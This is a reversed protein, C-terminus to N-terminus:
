EGVTAEATGYMPQLNSMGDLVFAKLVSGDAADAGAFTVRGTGAAPLAGVWVHTLRGDQMQTLVVAAGPLPQEAHIDVAAEGNAIASLDLELAANATFTYTEGQVGRNGGITLTYAGTRGSRGPISFAARGDAGTQAQQLGIIEEGRSVLAFVTEYPRNCTVEVRLARSFDVPNTVAKDLLRYTGDHAAGHVAAEVVAAPPPAPIERVPPAPPYIAPDTKVYDVRLDDMYITYDEVGAAKMYYPMTRFGMWKFHELEGAFRSLYIRKSSYKVGDFYYDMMASQDVVGDALPVDDIRYIHIGFTHWKEYETTPRAVTQLNKGQALYGSYTAFKYRSYGTESAGVTAADKRNHAGGVATELQFVADRTTYLKYSIFVDADAIDDMQADHEIDFYPGCLKGQNGVGSVEMKLVKGSGAPNDAISCAGAESGIGFYSPWYSPRLSPNTLSDFTEMFFPTEDLPTFPANAPINDPAPEPPAIVPGGVAPLFDTRKCVIFDDICAGGAGSQLKGTYDASGGWLRLAAYTMQNGTWVLSSKVSSVYEGDFYGDYMVYNDESRYIRIGYTHWQGLQEETVPILVNKPQSGGAGEYVFESVLGNLPSDAGAFQLTLARERAIGNGDFSHMIYVRNLKRQAETAATSKYRFSIYSDYEAMSNRIAYTCVQPGAAGCILRSEMYRNGGDSGIVLAGGIADCPNTRHGEYYQPLESPQQMASANNNAGTNQYVDGDAYPSSDFDLVFARADQPIVVPAAHAAMCGGPLLLCVALLLKYKM